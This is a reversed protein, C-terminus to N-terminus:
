VPSRRLVVRRERPMVAEVDTSPVLFRRRAFLGSRVVLEDPYGVHTHFRLEEVVGIRRGGVEVRFGESRGLWDRPDSSDRRFSTFVTTMRPQSFLAHSHFVAYRSGDLEALSLPGAVDRYIV